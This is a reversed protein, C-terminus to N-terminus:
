VTQLTGTLKNVIREEIDKPASEYKDFQLTFVARGQTQSRLSTSYGFMERLPVRADIVKANERDDIGEIKGQRTTIDNLVDGLYNEPVIVELEMIPQLLVAGAKKAADQFAMSGAIKFAVESSDVPHHSGDLLMAKIDVMPYGALIGNKMAGEVGQRVPDIFERPIAGGVIQNEFVFGKGPELPEIALKVHAYQGKGGTQKVFKTVTESRGAITEKYAVQPEGVNAGVKFERLLRDVIIELHLEGMGSIVTQGTESDVRVRFTPDEDSLKNLSEGLKEEDAKTKPEIAITIVPDPFHMKELLIPHGENCLTDGTKTGKLGVVAVIDGMIAESIDERKNAFMRLIRGFRERKGSTPNYATKGAALRGSYVRMYTLRGVYPDTSIKFALATFSDDLSMERVMSEHTKPNEGIIETRELPSPLYYVVADVLRQVGKNRFASGCLVPVIKFQITATRIARRIIDENIDKDGELYHGLLEDDFESVAELMKDHWLAAEDKLDDPIEMEEFLKGFSTENYIIAKMTILDILGTFMEASGIPIQLPVPNAGLRTRIMEQARYFDAGTRDMKNIFAIRPINYQNAQRWVTESQPEVGAVADFICIAGDLVRLSREVEVTFDVHGPTDIIVSNKWHCTTAASTITIGREKEQQMWDMTAAGDHVEGM